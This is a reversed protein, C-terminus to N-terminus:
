LMHSLYHMIPSLPDLKTEPGLGIVNTLIWFLSWLFMYYHCTVQKFHYITFTILSILHCLYRSLLVMISTQATM